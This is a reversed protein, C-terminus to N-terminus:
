YGKKMIEEAIEKFIPGCVEGGVKGNEVFVAISYKPDQRPFYGAFWAQVVMENNITQGTEASGTKGAAGGYLPIDAKKGTGNVVVEEMLIKIKDATEKSIIRKGEKDKVNKIKDGSVNIISDVINVKNKIGGNAITAVLDAIQLPSVMVDGQGIAINAIDGQSYFKGIGPLYGTAEDVGQEKIGIRTGLGFRAAMKLINEYGLEIGMNIFYPNCSKAFASTLNVEGHGGKYYSTCKLEKQGVNIYGQCNYIKYPDVGTEFAEATDIIKFISGINYSAVAKNFLENQPSELFLEVDNQDYDPKSTLAIIDGCSVDEVVVAGNISYKNMVEEVIKQIHYDLTLKINLKNNGHSNNVLRYGLGKLPNKLADTVVEISSDNDFHLVEEFYKEIGTKGVSDIGDLYGLVHKAISKEDYRQLSHIISVGKLDLQKLLKAKEEDGHFVLPKVSLMIDNKLGTFDTNLVHSIKEIDQDLDKLLMPKLVISIKESRDTFSIGNRDTIEGRASDVKTSIIRQSSATKSYSNFFFVQFIFIRVALM